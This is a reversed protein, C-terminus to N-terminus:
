VQDGIIHAEQDQGFATVIKGGLNQGQVEFAEALIPLLALAMWDKHGFGKHIKGAKKAGTVSGLAPDGQALGPPKLFEVVTVYSVALGLHDEYFRKM